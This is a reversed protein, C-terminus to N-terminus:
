LQKHEISRKYQVRKFNEDFLLFYNLFCFTTTRCGLCLYFKFINTNFNCKKKFQLKEIIVFNIFVPAFKNCTRPSSM